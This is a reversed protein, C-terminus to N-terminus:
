SDSNEALRMIFETMEDSQPDIKEENVTPTFMNGAMLASFDYDYGADDPDAAVDTQVLMDKGATQSQIGVASMDSVASQIVDVSVDCLVALDRVSVSGYQQIIDIVTTATPSQLQHTERIEKMETESLERDRHQTIPSDAQETTTEEANKQESSVKETDEDTGDAGGATSEDVTEPHKEDNEATEQDNSRSGAPDLNPIGVPESGVAALTNISDYEAIETSTQAIGETVGNLLECLLGINVNDIGTALPQRGGATVAVADRLREASTKTIRYVATQNPDDLSSVQTVLGAAQLTQITTTVTSSAIGLGDQLLPRTTQKSDWFALMAVTASPTMEDYVSDIQVATQMHVWHLAAESGSVKELNNAIRGAGSVPLVGTESNLSVSRDQLYTDRIFALVIGETFDFRYTSSNDYVIQERSLIGTEILRRAARSGTRSSVCAISAAMSQPLVTKQVYSEALAIIIDKDTAVLDFRSIIYEVFAAAEVRSSFLMQDRSLDCEVLQDFDDVSVSHTHRKYGGLAGGDIINEASGCSLASSYLAQVADIVAQSVSLSYTHVRGVDIPDRTIIGLSCLRTVISSPKGGTEILAESINSQIPKPHTATYQLVNYETETLETGSFKGAVFEVVTPGLIQMSGRESSQRDRLQVIGIAKQVDVTLELEFSNSGNVVVPSRTILGADSLIKVQRSGWRSTEDASKWLTTQTLPTQAVVFAFVVPDVRQLEAVTIETEVDALVSTSAQTSAQAASVLVLSRIAADADNTDLEAITGRQQDSLSREGDSVGYARVISEYLGFNVLKDLFSNHLRYVEENRPVRRSVETPEQTTILKADEYVDLWSHVLPKVSDIADREDSDKSTDIVTDTVVQTLETATVAIDNVLIAKLIEAPAATSFPADQNVLTKRHQVKEM